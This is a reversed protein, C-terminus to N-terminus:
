KIEEDKRPIRREKEEFSRGNLFHEARKKRHAIPPAKFLLFLLSHTYLAKCKGLFDRL